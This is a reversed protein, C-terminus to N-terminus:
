GLPNSGGDPDGYWEETVWEPSFARALCVGAGKFPSLDFRSTRERAFTARTGWIQGDIIATLRESKQEM